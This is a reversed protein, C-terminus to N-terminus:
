WDFQVSFRAFRPSVIGTPTGWPLTQGAFNGGPYSNMYGTAADSNFANYIDLGVNTRTRGFRLVKAVKIDFATYGEGYLTGTDLLNVNLNQANNLLTTRPVTSGAPAGTTTVSQPDWQFVDAPCIGGPCAITLNASRQVGPRYQFITSLLVDVYPVVYSASGRVNTQFPLAVHCNRQSPDDVQVACDDTVQRGTSTGGQLRFGGRARFNVNTDIGHWYRSEADTFTVAQRTPLGNFTPDLNTLGRIVYGGGDPLNPDTPATISYFDHTPNVFNLNNELCAEDLNCGLLVNDTLQFNGYWRRNYTVEVSVRPLVEHQVGLGWQWDYERKNWGSVVNQQEGTPAGFGVGSCYDLVDPHVASGFESEDRGCHTLAFGQGNTRPDTGFQAISGPYAGCEGNVGQERLDCDVIRDGNADNWTRSGFAPGTPAGFGAFNGLRRVPNTANYLGGVNAPQLYKGQNYKIATKGNGFVDWTVSWRPTIDNYSVGETRGDQQGFCFSEPVFRDEDICVEPFWSWAHDYRLAGQVTFRNVTWQDQAYIGYFSTREDAFAPFFINVGTPEPVTAGAVTGYTYNLRQLNGHFLDAENLFAGQYGVKINHSGTIYSASARINQNGADADWNTAGGSTVGNNYALPGSEAIRPINNYVANGGAGGTIGWKQNLLSVGAELLLRSTLPNTWSVQAIHNPGVFATNVAEPSTNANGTGTCTSCWDQEDWFLNFKNRQSAQLTLRLSANKAENVNKAPRSTDPVYNAGFVGENLNYFANPVRTRSGQQRATFYFWLRDRVIPGGVAGNVDYDKERLNSVNIHPYEANNTDFLRTGTYSTFYSGAFRNGGTRPVVNIVPGGVEAEGLSGSLTFSIEQSNAVDALYGSVGAGGIAAGVGMGDVQLRGEANNGGHASYANLTYGCTGGTCIGNSGSLAPVLNLLANATRGSPLERLVDGEITVQQQSNEVDVVPTEGIVSVTEALGVGMQADITATFGTNITINQRTVPSFGSLDFRVTYNGVPLAQIRYQGNGDTTATRVKEILAPSTVEVTVGPLVGGTTDRVTGSIAGQQALAVGPTFVFMLAAIIGIPVWSKRM